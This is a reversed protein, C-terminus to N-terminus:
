RDRGHVRFRLEHGATFKGNIGDLGQEDAVTKAGSRSVAALEDTLVVRESFLTRKSKKLIV